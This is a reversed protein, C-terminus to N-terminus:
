VSVFIKGFDAGEYRLPKSFNTCDVLEELTCHMEGLFDAKNIDNNYDDIDWVKFILKQVEYADYELKIKNKFIPNLENDICETRGLQFFHDARHHCRM